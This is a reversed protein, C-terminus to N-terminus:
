IPKCVIRDEIEVCNIQKAASGRPRQLEVVNTEKSEKRRLTEKRTDLMQLNNALRSVVKRNRPNARSRARIKLPKVIEKGHREVNEVPVIEPAPYDWAQPRRENVYPPDWYGCEVRGFRLRCGGSLDKQIDDENPGGSNKDYGCQIRDNITRCNTGDFDYPCCRKKKGVKQTTMPPETRIEYQEDGKRPVKPQQQNVINAHGGVRRTKSEHNQACDCSKCKRSITPHLVVAM